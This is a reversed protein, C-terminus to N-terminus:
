ITWVWEYHWYKTETEFQISNLYWAIKAANLGAELEQRWPDFERKTFLDITGTMASEIHMSDGELDAADDEMWVFYRDGKLHEGHSVKDTIATLIPILKEYYTM